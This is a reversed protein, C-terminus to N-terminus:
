PSRLFLRRRRRLGILASAFLFTAVQTFTSSEPVVGYPNSLASFGGSASFTVASDIGDVGFLDQNIASNQTATYAILRIYSELTFDEALVQGSGTIDSASAEEIAEALLFFPIAFTVYSDADLTNVKKAAFESFGNAITGADDTNGSTAQRYDYTTGDILDMLTTIDAALSTADAGGNAIYDTYFQDGTTEFTPTFLGTISSTSPSQNTDSGSGQFAISPLGSQSGDFGFFLDVDNDADADIGFRVRSNSQFGGAEFTNSRVRMVLYDQIGIGTIGTDYSTINMMFGPNDASSGVMDDAYQGTQQDARPDSMYQTEDAGSRIINFGSVNGTVLGALQASASSGTFVTALIIASKALRPFHSLFLPM